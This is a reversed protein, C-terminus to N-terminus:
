RPVVILAILVILAVSIPTVFIRTPSASATAVSIILSIPAILVISVIPFIPVAASIALILSIVISIAM